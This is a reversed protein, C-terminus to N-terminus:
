GDREMKVLFSAAGSLALWNVVLRDRKGLWLAVILGVWFSICLPCNIGESQWSDSGYHNYVQGRLTEFVRYPGTELAIMRSVRYVAFAAIVFDRM